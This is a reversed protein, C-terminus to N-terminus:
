QGTEIPYGAAEWADTGGPFMYIKTFGRSIALAAPLAVWRSPRDYAYIVIEKDRAALKGLAVENFWWGEQWWELLHSGAIRRNRWQIHTDIFLAGRDYLAKAEVANVIVAGKVESVSNNAYETTDTSRSVLNLWEGGTPAGVAKLGQKFADRNGPWRFRPHAATVLTVPGWSANARLEDARRLADKAKDVQGTQGYAAALYVFAWSDDPNQRTAQQLSEAANEYQGLHFQALALKVLYAAPYHPDLRMAVNVSNEAELPRRAKLLANAMALHGAPNNPDIKLSSEAEILARRPSSSFWVIWEAAVQHTLATPNQRSRSLALRGHEYVEYYPLGLSQQWLGKLYIDQYTAALAALARDFDPEVELAQEFFEIASAYDQPSGARFHGWGKLFLDYARADISESRALTKSEELNLNLALQGVIDNTVKDQLAFVDDLVGDFTETWVHDGSLADILQANIRVRVGARRVSGELVYRVGLAEAVRRIEIERNKYVFVSNRAVVFLGSLKSLDIILDETMGDVFYEQLSDASLNSFPLVAISPKDPLPLEMKELSAPEVQTGWPELWFAVAIMVLVMFYAALRWDYFMLRSLATAKDSQRAAEVTQDIDFQATARSEGKNGVIPNMDPLPIDADPKLQIRYVQVPDDFGKLTQEGLHRLEFPLRKPLAERVAPTICVGGPEALQEVRQALVVGAGTVTNDASVVEGLSIGIRIIPKPDDDLQGLYAEQEFQFAIAASVADSARPFQALLADGRIEHVKGHYRTIVDSFNTFSRTIRDHALSEDCHVLETSGAVDAHMIIALETRHQGQGM